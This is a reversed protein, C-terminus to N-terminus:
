YQEFFQLATRLAPTRFTDSEIFLEHNAEEIVLLKCRGPSRSNVSDCFMNQGANEVIQDKGAQIVLVPIGIRAGDERAKRAAACAQAAWHLSAGGLQADQNKSFADVMINYRVQSHTYANKAFPESKYAAAKGGPVKLEGFYSKIDVAECKLEHGMVERGIQLMPSSLVAASFFGNGRELYLASIAGGMSHALLYRKTTETLPKVLTDVFTQLDSVYDQFEDVYGLQPQDKTKRLRDSLGQGRHDYMFVSYGNQVLDRALEAYKVVSETRGNVVVIAGRKDSTGPSFLRYHLKLGGVGDFTGVKANNWIDDLHGKAGPQRLEEESTLIPFEAVAPLTISMTGAVAFGIWSLTSVIRNM